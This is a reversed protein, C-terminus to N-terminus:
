QRATQLLVEFQEPPVPKSFLYGQGYDCGVAALLGRQKETEVGEAIVKLGLKHAMVIIAECLAMDNSSAELNCVFSQDIKLYDIDFKKLYSLSSYGTGFDDLSVQIGADRFALLQGTIDTDADLLLGETIEVVISQGPLGLKQLHEFWSDHNIGDNRYQVPSTNISIQFQAHHTIRWCAAHRAAERFIWDGIDVIMGTEEAIPIFETPSVLGRAPHQWRILAEAKHIAGTLLEVIPQYVVRFQNAALAGRLDSTLRMRMQAIKQMAPTFFNFRNRGESKAAYMAQDANKFLEVIDTGDEPYLTLGISASIYAVEDELQFPEALKLLIDQAIREVSGPDTLECLIITFEDGGLRAVTDTERVCGSLRQAADKLLIDGMDHGLTDNVGKFGDLDLYMLALPLNARHAKKIEQELRNHCMRRNPLGTLYDFNAQKWILDEARKRESLDRLVYTVFRGMSGKFVSSSVEVPFVSGDRRFGEAEWSPLPANGAELLHPTVKPILMEMAQGLVQNRYYGFMQEASQNFYAIKGQADAMIIGDNATEALDRFRRESELAAARLKEEATLDEIILLLLRAEEEEEEEALRTGALTIRLLRPSGDKAPMEMPLNRKAEGTSLVELAAEKLGSMPLLEMVMPHSAIAQEDVGFTERFSRNASLVALDDRLILIGAPMSEVITEAHRRRLNLASLLRETQAAMQNFTHALLSYLEDRTTTIELRQSFDGGAIRKAAEEVRLIPQVIYRRTLFVGALFAIGTLCAVSELIYLVRRRLRQTREEFRTVLQHSLESLEVTGSEARRYAEQFQPEGRPRIAVDTLDPKLARWFNDVAALEGRVEPPAPVLQGGLIEGGQEMASLSKEFESIRVQLGARDEEQGIAVMQVWTRIEASLMRQRGAVNMFHGDNKTEQLFWAFFAISVLSGFLPILLLLSIKKMLASGVASHKSAQKSAQAVNKGYHSWGKSTTFQSTPM